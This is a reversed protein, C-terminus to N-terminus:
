GELWIYDLVLSKNNTLAEKISNIFNNRVESCLNTGAPDKRGQAYDRQIKPIVIKKCSKLLQLFTYSNGNDSSMITRGGTYLRKSM